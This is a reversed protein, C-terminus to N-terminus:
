ILLLLLLYLLLLFTIAQSTLKNVSSCTYMDSDLTYGPNCSCSYSGVTNTCIQSCNISNLSCEDIDVCTNTETEIQYGAEICECGSSNVVNFGNVCPFYNKTCNVYNSVDTLNKGALTNPTSCKGSIGNRFSVLSVWSFDCNCDFPNDQADLTVLSKQRLLFERNLSTLKCDQVSLRTLKPFTYTLLLDMNISGDIVLSHLEDLGTFANVEFTTNVSDVRLELNIMNVLKSFQYSNYHRLGHITLWEISLANDFANDALAFWEADYTQTLTLFLLKPQNLMSPTITIVSPLKLSHFVIDYLETSSLVPFVDFHINTLDIVPLNPFDTLFEESVYLPQSSSITLISIDPQSHNFIISNNRGDIELYLETVGGSIDLILTKNDIGNINFHFSFAAISITRYTTCESLLDSAINANSTSIDCYIAPRYFSCSINNDICPDGNISQCFLILILVTNILLMTRRRSQNICM